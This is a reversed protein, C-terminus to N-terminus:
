GTRRWLLLVAIGIVLAALLLWRRSSQARRPAPEVRQAISLWAAEPPRVPPLDRALGSLREEWQQWARRAMLDRELLAEFRRRARPALSGLAYAGAVQQLARGQLKM